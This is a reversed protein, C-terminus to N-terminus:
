QITVTREVTLPVPTNGGDYGEGHIRVTATGPADFRLEVVHRLARLARDCVGGVQNLDYVAVDARQDTRTVEPAARRRCTSGWTVVTVRFPEGARAAAPVEVEPGAHGAFTLLGPARVYDEGETGTPSCAAGLLLAAALAMRRIRM